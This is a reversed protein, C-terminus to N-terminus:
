KSVPLGLACVCSVHGEAEKQLLSTASSAARGKSTRAEQRATRDHTTRLQTASAGAGTQLTRKTTHMSSDHQSGNAIITQSSPEALPKGVTM